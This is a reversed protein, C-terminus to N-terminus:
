PPRYKERWKIVQRGQGPKAARMSNGHRTRGGNPSDCIAKESEDSFYAQLKEALEKLTKFLNEFAQWLNNLLDCTERDTKGTYAKLVAFLAKYETGATRKGIYLIGGRQEIRDM